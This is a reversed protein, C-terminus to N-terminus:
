GEELNARWKSDFPMALAALASKVHDENRAGILVTDVAPNNLAWAVALQAAPINTRESLTRLREVVRFKEDHFYLDAHGPLVHFRSGPPLHRTAPDYKGTLFGAGLPSYTQVGVGRARCLPLLSREADRVALNYNFQAVALRPLGHKDALDLAHDLQEASFNSCGVHRVKGSGVAAAFAGLTEELPTQPDFAHLLYLDVVDTQLRQLSGDLADLIRGRTLPPAVKTQLVIRDRCRRSALWRGLILESSHMEGSVERVDSNGTQRWRGDRSQGGGYAEATDLLNIGADITYDLIAFSQREDIERGFTVCGLSLPGVAIPTTGLRKRPPKM